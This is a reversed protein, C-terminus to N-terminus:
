NNNKRNGRGGFFLYGIGAALATVVAGVAAGSAFSELNPKQGSEQQQKQGDVEEESYFEEEDEDFYLKTIVDNDGRVPHRCNPCTANRRLWEELCKSHFVHGCVIASAQSQANSAGAVNQKKILELRCIACTLPKADM